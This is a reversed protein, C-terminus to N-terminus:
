EKVREIYNGNSTDIRILDNENVFIPVQVEAGTELTAPKKTNNATDGKFGPETYTVRLNVHPPVQVSLVQDGEFQLSVEENEKIFRFEEGIAAEEVPIQDYTTQDMFYLLNGDKYLYQFPKTEIRVLEISEGSNYKHEAANGTRLNRMNVKFFAGGKGPKRFEVDTILCNEGNYKIVAGSRLDSTNAM